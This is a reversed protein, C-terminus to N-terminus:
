IVIIVVRLIVLGKNKTSLVRPFYLNSFSSSHPYLLVLSTSSIYLFFTDLGFILRKRAYICEAFDQFSGFRAHWKEHDLLTLKVHIVTLNAVKCVFLAFLLSTLRM